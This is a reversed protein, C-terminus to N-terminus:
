LEVNKKFEEKIQDLDKKRPSIKYKEDSSIEALTHGNELEFIEDFGFGNNGRAEDSIIGDLTNEFTKEINKSKLAIVTTYHCTRNEKKVDKLKELLHLNKTHDDADMWRATHVGPFGDLADISLGSDDAICILEDNVQEYLCRVKELANDKFTNKDEKIIIEKSLLEEAEKKSIVDYDKFIDKFEKIKGKNSTAIIIKKSKM